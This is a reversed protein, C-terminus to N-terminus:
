YRLIKYGCTTSLMRCGEGFDVVLTKWEQGNIQHYVLDASVGNVNVVITQNRRMKLSRWVVLRNYCIFPWCCSSHIRPPAFHVSLFTFAQNNIQLVIFKFFLSQDSFM